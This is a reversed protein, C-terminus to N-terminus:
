ALPVLFLGASRLIPPNTVPELAPINCYTPHRPQSKSNQLL